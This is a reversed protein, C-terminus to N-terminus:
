DYRFAKGEETEFFMRRLTCIDRPVSEPNEADHLTRVWAYYKNALPTVLASTRKPGIYGKRIAENSISRMFKWFNYYTLKKKVMYGKVDEIVFGEIIRGNWRYDDTTVDNYWDYFEQWNALTCAREKCEFGFREAIACMQEYDYKKFEIDNYIIDLLILKSEPYDIIHPDREMDVNEFVFSVNNM